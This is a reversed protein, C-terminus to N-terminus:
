LQQWAKVRPIAPCVDQNIASLQITKNHSDIFFDEDTCFATLPQEKLYCAATDIGIKYGDYFPSYFGTHGFIIIKNFYRKETKIFDYRNFILKEAPINDITTEYLEPPIGSHTVIYKDMSHYNKLSSFFSGFEKFLISKTEMLSAKKDISQVTNMGGYKLLQGAYEDTNTNMKEWFYEHNGRLFTCKYESSLQSLYKLTTYSNEGKNIYDGIFILTPNKDIALINKLLLKLKTEEGHIDGIVFIM